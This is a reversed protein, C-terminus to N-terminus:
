TNKNIVRELVKSIPVYLVLMIVFNSVGHVVDFPIGAIWYAIASKLGATPNLASTVFLYPFSCLFGFALGYFGSLLAMSFVSKFKSLALTLLYLILWVYCYALVWMLEFGFILIEITVFAPIIWFTKKGFYLTFMIILFSTLEVNAIGSLALKCVEIIAVMLSLLVIDRARSNNNTM